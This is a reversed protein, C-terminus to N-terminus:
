ILAFVVGYRKQSGHGQGRHVKKVGFYIPKWSEYHFMEIDLKPSGLQM